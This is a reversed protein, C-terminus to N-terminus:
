VGEAVADKTFSPDWVIQKVPGKRVLTLVALEPPSFWRFPFTAGLGRNVYLYRDNIHFLGRKLAKNKLDTIRQWIYPLNVQGGHTHGFLYLNGPYAQLSSFSDPNHSLVIGPAHMDYNRFAVNPNCQCAMLDGLGTLNIWSHSKGIHVTENHLLSVHAKKLLQMLEDHVEVPSIVKEGLPQSDKLSFLRSFGRMIAPTHDPVKRFQGDEAMSVYDRYDHNGLVAYLGLPAHLKSLFDSLEAPNSLQSYCLFDGTFVILDCSLKQIRKLVRQLYSASSYESLHLDSIHLIRM